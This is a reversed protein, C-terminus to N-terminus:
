GPFRGLDTPDAARAPSERVAWSGLGALPRELRSAPTRRSRM